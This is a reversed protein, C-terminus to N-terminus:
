DNSWRADGDILWAFSERARAEMAPGYSHGAGEAHFVRTAVDSRQLYGACRQASEVCYVSGCGFLVRQGGSRAYKRAAFPSWEDFFGNGGEILAARPFQAPYLVIVLAGQIAGQSFGAWIAASADLRDPYSAELASMAAKVERALAFHDPYYYAAHEPPVKRNTRHGRPCLIFGREGAVRRWLACHSEARDWAGHAALLLPQRRTSPRPVAVVAPEYGPVPLDIFSEGAARAREVAATPHPAIASSEFPGCASSLLLLCSRTLRTM